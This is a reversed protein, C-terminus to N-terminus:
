IVICALMSKSVMVHVASFHHELKIAYLTPFTSLIFVFFFSGGLEVGKISTLKCQVM